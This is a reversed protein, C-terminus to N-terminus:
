LLTKNHFTRIYNRPSIHINNESPFVISCTRNNYMDLLMKYSRNTLPVLRVSTETKPSDQVITITKTKRDTSRDYVVALGKTVSIYKQAFDIDSWELALLEGTRLGTDM